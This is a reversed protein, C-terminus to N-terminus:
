ITIKGSNYGEIFNNLYKNANIIQNYGSTRGEMWKKLGELDMIKKHEQNNYDMKLMIETFESILDDNVNSHFTFICHDFKETKGLIEVTNEDITGDKIWANYNSSLCFTANIAKGVMALMSDKEGGIHDGHLGVGINFQKEIYDKQYELGQTHLFYIPILRAQPSDIAGFGITKGKLDNINKFNSDKRVVLYTNLDQDSDRMCSIKEKGEFRQHADLHALPSNWAVDIEHKELADVQLKYDKFYVAKIPFGSEKYYNEIMEWIITVRPDYVVAGVKLNEM